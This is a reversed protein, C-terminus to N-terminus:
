NDASGDKSGEESGRSRAERVWSGGEGPPPEAFTRTSGTAPRASAGAITESGCCHRRVITIGPKEDRPHERDCLRATPGLSMPPLSEPGPVAEQVWRPATSISSQIKPTAPGRVKLKAGRAQPHLRQLKATPGGTGSCRTTSPRRSSSM